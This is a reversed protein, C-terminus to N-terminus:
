AIFMMRLIVVFAFVYGIGIFLTYFMMTFYDVTKSRKGLHPHYFLLLPVLYIIQYYRGIGRLSSANNRNLYEVLAIIAIIICVYINKIFYYKNGNFMRTAQEQGYKAKFILRIFYLGVLYTVCLFSFQPRETTFLYNIWKNDKIGLADANLHILTTVSIIAIPIIACLRFIVKRKKTNVFSPTFFLFFMIGFYCAISGFNNPVNIYNIVLTTIGRTKELYTLLTCEIVYMGLFVFFYMFFNRIGRKDEMYIDFDIFYLLFMGITFYIFLKTSANNFTEQTLGTNFFLLSVNIIVRISGMLILVIGIIEFVTEPVFPFFKIDKKPEKYEKKPAELKTILEQKYKNKGFFISFLLLFLIGAIFFIGVYGAGLSSVETFLNSNAGKEHDVLLENYFDYDLSTTEKIMSTFDKNVDQIHEQMKSTVNSYLHGDTSVTEGSETTIVGSFTFVNNEITFYSIYKVLSNYDVYQVDLRKLSDSAMNPVIYYTSSKEDKYNIYCNLSRLAYNNKSTSISVYKSDDSHHIEPRVMEHLMSITMSGNKRSAEVFSIYRESYYEDAHAMTYAYNNFGYFTFIASFLLLVLLVYRTVKKSLIHRYWKEFKSISPVYESPYSSIGELYISFDIGLADSIKKCTKKSPKVYGIEYYRYYLHPIKLFKAFAKRSMGMEIRKNYLYENYSLKNEM